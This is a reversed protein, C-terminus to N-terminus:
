AKRVEPCIIHGDEGRTHPVAHVLDPAGQCRRSRRWVSQLVPQGPASQM